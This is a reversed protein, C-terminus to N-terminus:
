FGSRADELAEEYEEETEYDDPDIGYESGDEATDRWGYRAEELASAYEEETEFDEPFVGVDAGYEATERWGYKAKELARDFEAKTEYKEPAVGYKYGEKCFQRWSYDRVPFDFDIGDEEGSTLTDDPKMADELIKMGLWQEGLDEKGDGNFDFLGGFPNNFFDDWFGSKGM